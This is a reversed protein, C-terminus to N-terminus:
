TRITYEGTYTCSEKWKVARWANPAEKIPLKRNTGVHTIQPFRESRSPRRRMSVVLATSSSTHTSGSKMHSLALGVVAVRTQTRLAKQTSTALKTPTAGAPRDSIKGVPTREVPMDM